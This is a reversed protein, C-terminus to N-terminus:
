DNVKLQDARNQLEHAYVHWDPGFSLLDVGAERGIRAASM